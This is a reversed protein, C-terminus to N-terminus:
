AQWRLLGDGGPGVHGQLGIPNVADDMLVDLTAHDEPPVRALTRAGDALRLLAAGFAISADPRFVITFTELIAPGEAADAIRPAAGRRRDAEAQVDVSAFVTEAPAPAAGLVLGHHWTLYGGQAYLLGPADPAARLARVVGAAGHTMYNSLPAGHFTLGGATTPVVTDPLGLTRCAMKPVIPFCSYLEVPGLARGDLQRLIAGLVAEQGAAHVFSDRQMWDRPESAAAGGHIYIMRDTPVGASRAVALSTVLIAAAQNVAPNAVMLKPYPWAIPRNAPGAAAIEAAPVARQMWAIPNVSAVQSLRTWLEASETRGQAPTQGWAAQSANEYLPYVTIPETIGHARALPHLYDRNRAPLWAGNSAQSGGATWNLAVGNRRAWTATYSAEAGCVAAVESEGRAIRQAAEHLFQIPTQGGVKGYRQRAPRAGVTQSLLAPLDDYQWSVVNVVDLSDLRELLAAGADDQARRLAAAMLALPEQGSSPDAPRDKVEGIGVIVPICTPDM